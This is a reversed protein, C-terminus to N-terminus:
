DLVWDWELNEARSTPRQKNNTLEKVKEYVYDKLKSIPIGQEGKWTDYSLDYLANLFSYTFM